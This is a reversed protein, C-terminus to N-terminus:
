ATATKDGYIFLLGDQERDPYGKFTANFVREEEYKFAFTMGGATAALPIILDESVDSDPLNIPHMILEKARSLLSIGTGTTIEAKIKTSTTGDVIKTAGPMLLVLLDLTTEALPATVTINRGMITENAVTDGFQDVKTEKTTTEVTVEVGGMTLGLDQGNFTIKCTGMKINEASSVM